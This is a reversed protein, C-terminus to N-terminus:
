QDLWAKFAAVRERSVLVDAADTAPPPHLQLRLRSGPYPRIDRVATLRVAFKRSLRFFLHPDLLDELEDLTHDILCSRGDTGVLHVAHGDAYFYAVEDAHRFQMRGNWRVLFRSKYRTRLQEFLGALQTLDPAPAPRPPAEAVAEAAAASSGSSATLQNLKHLARRLEPLGIPKLLYDISLVQFAQLAYADYATTFVIPCEITVQQFIEFCLGDALQVDLLVLGPAPNQRFWRVAEEVSDLHAVVRLRPDCRHLLNKLGEAAPMEDEILLVDM